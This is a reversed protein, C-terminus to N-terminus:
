STTDVSSVRISFILLKSKSNRNLPKISATILVCITLVVNNIPLSTTPAPINLLFSSWHGSILKCEILLIKCLLVINVGIHNFSMKSKELTSSLLVLNLKEFYRTSFFLCFICAGEQCLSNM